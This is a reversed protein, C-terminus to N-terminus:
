TIMDQFHVKTTVNTDDNILWSIQRSYSYLMTSCVNHVALYNWDVKWGGTMIWRLQNTVLSVLQNYPYVAPLFGDSCEQYGLYKFM